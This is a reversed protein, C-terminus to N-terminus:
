LKTEDGIVEDCSGIDCIQIFDTHFDYFLIDMCFKHVKFHLFSM